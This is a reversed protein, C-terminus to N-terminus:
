RDLTSIRWSSSDDPEIEEDMDMTQDVFYKSVELARGQCTVLLKFVIDHHGAALRTLRRIVVDTEKMLPAIEYQNIDDIICLLISKPPLQCTLEYFTNCLAKLNLKEVKQWDGKSLNSLDIEIKKKSMQTLLQGVLSAMMTTPPSAASEQMFCPRQNCFYKVVYASESPSVMGESIRALKAAVFSLSSLGETSSLDERGNVLLSSSALHEAMFKIFRPHGIMAASRAKKYEDLTEGLRLCADVDNTTISPDYSL